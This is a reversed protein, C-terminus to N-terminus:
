YSLSAITLSLLGNSTGAALVFLPELLTELVCHATVNPHKNMMALITAAASKRLLSAGEVQDSHMIEM